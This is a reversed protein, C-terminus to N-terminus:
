AFLALEMADSLTSIKLFDGQERTTSAVCVAVLPDISASSGSPCSHTPQPQLGRYRYTNWIAPYQPLVATLLLLCARWYDPYATQSALHQRERLMGNFSVLSQDLALVQEDSTHAHLARGLERWLCKRRGSDYLREAEVEFVGAVHKRQFVNQKEFARLWLAVQRGQDEIIEEAFATFNTIGM